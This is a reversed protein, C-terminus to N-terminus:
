IELPGIQIYIEVVSHGEERGEDLLNQWWLMSHGKLFSNTNHYAHKHFTVTILHVKDLAHHACHQISSSGSATYTLIAVGQM